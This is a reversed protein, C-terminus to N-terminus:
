GIRILAIVLCIFASFVKECGVDDTTKPKEESESSVSSSNPYSEPDWIGM